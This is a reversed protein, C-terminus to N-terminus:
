QQQQTIRAEDAEDEIFYSLATFVLGIRSEDVHPDGTPTYPMEFVLPTGAELLRATEPEFYTLLSM